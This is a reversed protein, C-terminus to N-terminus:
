WSSGWWILWRRSSEVEPIRDIAVAKRQPQDKQDVIIESATSSM